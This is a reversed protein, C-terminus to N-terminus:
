RGRGDQDPDISRDFDRNISKGNHICSKGWVEKGKFRRM